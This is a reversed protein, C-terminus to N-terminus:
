GPFQKGLRTGATLYVGHLAVIGSVLWLLWRTTDLMRGTSQAYVPLAESVDDISKGLEDFSREQEELQSDLHGTMRPLREAFEDSVDVAGNLAKEYEERHEVVHQLQQRTTKLLTASRTLTTRIEPWRAVAADIGKQAQRLSVAVDKMKETDRLVRALDAGLKPLNEALRAAHEPVDKLLPEVKDQNKLAVALAERSREAVKKSEDLSSRLNPLEAALGDMEKGAANVGEAAKRMGDAIKGGEPWFPKQMVNPKVGKFEVVPYTYSALRDVQDAGTSLSDELGKVGEKMKDFRELKLATNVRDLGESFRALGEYVERAAKLDLPTSKLLESLRVADDRLARTSEDLQDAAMAATPAVKEDLFDATTGLGQGLKGLAEPDLTTALGDLGNAVDGLADSMTRVTDFDLNQSRLATTVKHVEGRLRVALEDVEPNRLEHVQDRLLKVQHSTRDTVKGMRGFGDRVESSTPLQCSFVVLVVAVAVELLGLTLFVARRM